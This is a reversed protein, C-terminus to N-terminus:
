YDSFELRDLYYPKLKSKPFDYNFQLYEFRVFSGDEVYKDSGLWNYGYQYLARPMDTEDGEHGDGTSLLVKTTIRTCIKM